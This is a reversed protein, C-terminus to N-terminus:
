AAMRGRTARESSVPPKTLVIDAQKLFEVCEPSRFDGGPYKGEADGKLAIRNARNKKLFLKVDDIDAAGDNSKDKVHDVMAAVAKPKKRHGNRAHYGPFCTMPGVIPSGDDDVAGISWGRSHM